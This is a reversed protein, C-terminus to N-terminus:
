NATQTVAASVSANNNADGPYSASVTRPGSAAFTIKCSSKGGALKGTCSEGTSANLTVTGTPKTPNTIAQTVSFDFTVMQGSVSPNPSHSTITTTTNIPNVTMQVNDSVTTYDSPASPTFKVSLNQLGVTLVKGSVPTYVFNGPTNATANLQTSSLPTGYTIAAPDSWTIVSALKQASTKQTAVAKAYVDNAAWTATMTCMGSGSTITVLLTTGDISCPGSTTFTPASTSNSSAAVTFTSQYPATAPAGTFSVSPTTPKAVITSENVLTAVGYNGNGPETMTEKCATNGSSAMTYTAGVNTCGGSSAFTVPLGSTASAIVTFSSKLTASAPAPTTVTISQSALAANLVQTVTAAASYNSNGAQDAIVRCIGTGSTMTYMPGANSCVGSSTYAVPLGSSATASVAFSSNYAANSPANTTFTITQLAPTAATTQTVQTAASYNGNGAQNAIVSCAGTGSTMTYTAGFNSCSGASTFVVPNGSAGGTAAVTFNSNYLASAPASTTFTITQSAPTANTTQTVPTAASYNSDGAQNAIVSCTSTGSTITYTAGSNSCSGASTFVVPNGSAGGTAAVTFSTNYIASAPANATFTITQSAPSANTAQTVQAAAAYNSDGSQNAIVSCAGTGSTMTYTASVNSCAGSATYAVALGSSANAAVTFNTNYVASAPANTTFTIMQSALTANTTQTVQTAAAYNGDGAQNAIVSCAGTGSTMTYTAGSNSCSGASTFVVPNASGGGTAAVTFQSNYVASAPAPTTFTITQSALTANVSFAAQPAASYQGNGPQDVYVACTGTGSTMTYTSGSNTCSGGSTHVVALGSSATCAVSFSSNYAASVPPQTTCSITQSTQAAFNATIAQPGTMLLSFPNSTSTATGTFNVFYFGASPTATITADTGSAFYGGPSVSGGMGAATTLLYNTTFTANYAATTVPATVVHSPSTTGDEWQSFAYQVGTGGSQPTAVSLTCNSGPTWALTIPTTNASPACGTGSSTFALGSPSSTVEVDGAPITPVFSVGKFNSDAPATDLVTFTETAAQTATTFTLNDTIGYLFTFDLDNLTYNTAYLLVNNGSVTGTLGFLGSTGSSSTNLVLNLGQHLTYALSWTGLGNSQSNVWKQLGGNGVLSTASNQKPAGSDAVYLVSPSAFFYNVPSLNIQLGANSGNGNSNSGSTIPFKGTSTTGFGTLQTPGNSSNFLSTAPPTGLTGIFSRASNSGGKTDVSVYLTNNFIQVDRTDQSVTKGTTDLGTIATPANNVAGVPTLFVGATADGSAGQGSIYATTGNLTCASRPNNTSFVNYIATSSNVNGNADILALVRPVPTYSQGTLSGSQALASNPTASYSNPNSNFSLTDIGYGMVVLYQGVNSLNLAAESSSGYEGSLSFNAGSGIQPLVLSNVYSVSSTGTPAYQFLTLPAAQNDGYGNLASNGAGSGTGNSVNTCTGGHVGCGEVSVVLNGPTFFPSQAAASTVVGTVPLLFLALCVFVRTTARSIM